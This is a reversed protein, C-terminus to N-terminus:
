GGHSNTPNQIRTIPMPTAYPRTGKLHPTDSSGLDASLQRRLTQGARWLREVEKDSIQDPGTTSHVSAIAELADHYQERAANTLFMGGSEDFYWEDFSFGWESLEPRRPNTRWYRPLVKTRMYLSGYAEFRRVRLERDYHFALERRMQQRTTTWTAVGGAIAGVLAGALGIWFGV